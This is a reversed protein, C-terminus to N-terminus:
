KKKEIKKKDIKEEVSPYPKVPKSKDIPANCVWCANETNALMESCKLCYLVECDSCIFNFGGIKGKCILCTKKERHFTVEEETIFDPRKRLRFLSHELEIKEKDPLIPKIQEEKLSLYWFWFSVITVFRSIITAINFAGIGDVMGGGGYLISTLTLYIFKRKIVNESKISRFLYGSGCFIVVFLMLISGSIFASSNYILDPDYIDEGPILPRNFNINGQPDILIFFGFIIGIILVILRMLNKLLVNEPFLLETAIYMALFSIIPAWIWTLIGVLGYPNEINNDTFIVIIFDYAMVSYVLGAFIIMLSMYSLLKARIKKAKIYFLLGLIVGFLFAVLTFVGKFLNIYSLM